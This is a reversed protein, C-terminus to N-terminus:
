LIKRRKTMPIDHQQGWDNKMITASLSSPLVATTGSCAVKNHLESVFPLRHKNNHGNHTTANTGITLIGGMIGIPQPQQQQQQTQHQLQMIYRRQQEAKWDQTSRQLLPENHGFRSSFYRPTRGKTFEKQDLGDPNTLILAEMVTTPCGWMAAIHLPIWGDETEYIQCATPYLQLIYLQIEEPAQYGIAVHLPTNQYEDRCTITMSQGYPTQLLTHVELWKRNKLLEMLGMSTLSSSLSTAEQHNM